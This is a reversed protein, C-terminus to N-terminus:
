TTASRLQIRGTSMGDQVNTHHGIRIRNADAWIVCQFWVNWHAGLEVDSIVPV